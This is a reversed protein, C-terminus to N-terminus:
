KKRSKVLNELKKNDEELEYVKQELEDFNEKCEKIEKEQDQMVEICHEKDNYIKEWEQISM